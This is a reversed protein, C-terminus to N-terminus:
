YSTRLQQFPEGIPPLDDGRIYASAANIGANAGIWVVQHTAFMPMGWEAHAALLIMAFNCTSALHPPTTGARLSFTTFESEDDDRM